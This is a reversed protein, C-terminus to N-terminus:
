NIPERYPDVVYKKQIPTEEKKTEPPLVSAPEAITTAPTTVPKIIPQPAPVPAQAAAPTRIPIATAVADEPLPTATFRPVPIPRQIPEVPKTELKKQLVDRLTPLPVTKVSENKEIMPLNQPAVEPVQPSNVIAGPTKKIETKMDAFVNQPKPKEEEKKVEIPAPKPTEPVVPKTKEEVKIEPEVPKTEAVVPKEKETKNKSEIQNIAYEFVRKELDGMIQEALLRSIGVDKVITDLFTDPSELGILVLVVTNALADTQIPNLSYKKAIENTREEWAGNLVFDQVAPPLNKVYEPIENQTKDKDM